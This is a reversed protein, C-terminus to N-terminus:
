WVLVYDGAKQAVIRAGMGELFRLAGQDGHGYRSGNGPKQEVILTPKCRGLTEIAGVLVDREFGEVDIKCFGVNQLNFSDLTHVPVSMAGDDAVHSHGSNGPYRTMTLRGEAAGLACEHLIVNPAEVNELFCTAHEHVPEFADVDLFRNALHYSWLGVHAGVDVARTWNSVHELAMELKHYQYSMRGDVIHGGHKGMHQILHDEGDPFWWGGFDIM